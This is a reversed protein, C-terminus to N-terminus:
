FSSFSHMYTFYKIKQTTDRNLNQRLKANKGALDTNGFSLLEGFITEELDASRNCIQQLKANKGRWIQIALIESNM